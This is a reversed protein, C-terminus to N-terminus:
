GRPLASRITAHSLCRDSRALPGRLPSRGFNMAYSEIAKRGAASGSWTQRSIPVRPRVLSEVLPRDTEGDLASAYVYAPIAKIGLSAAIWGGHRKPDKGIRLQPCAKFVEDSEFIVYGDADLLAGPFQKVQHYWDGTKRYLAQLVTLGWRRALEKGREKEPM